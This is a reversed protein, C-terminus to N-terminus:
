NNLILFALYPATFCALCACILLSLKLIIYLLLLFSSYFAKAVNSVERDEPSVMTVWTDKLGYGDIMRHFQNVEPWVDDAVPFDKGILAALVKGCELIRNRIETRPMEDYNKQKERCSKEKTQRTLALWL